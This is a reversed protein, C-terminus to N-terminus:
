QTHPATVSHLIFGERMRADKALVSRRAMVLVTMVLVTMV